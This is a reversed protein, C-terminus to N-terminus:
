KATPRDRPDLQMIRCIFTRDEVALEKDVAQAFPKWKNNDIIYQTADGLIVFREDDEPLIELYNLPLLGFHAIQKIL